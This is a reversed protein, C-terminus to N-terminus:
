IEGSYKVGGLRQSSFWFLYSLRHASLDKTKPDKTIYYRTGSKATTSAKIYVTDGQRNTHSLYSPM